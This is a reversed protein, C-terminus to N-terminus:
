KSDPRLLEVLTKETSAQKSGRFEYIRRTAQSVTKVFESHSRGTVDLFGVAYNERDFRGAANQDLWQFWHAGVFRPEAVASALYHAYALGRQRQDWVGFLGSGPVGRDVAGFHFESAIIPIDIDSTLQHARVQSEYVNVSFVDVHGVAAHGLLKPGRHTRCGLYLTGPLMAEVAAKCRKFFTTAFELYLPELDDRVAKSIEGDSVRTLILDWDTHQTKWASNLATLQGYKQKMKATAWAKTASDAAEDFLMPTIEDPWDLENGIFVGLLWPDDKAWLHKKLADRLKSEFDDSFPSPFVNLNSPRWWPSAILTYPLRHDKQMAEDSWCGLTNLGWAQMRSLDGERTLSEWEKGFFRAYNLSPYNILQQGNHWRLGAWRLPDNKDPIYAFFGSDRRIPRVATESKNGALCVGVSFFLHGEPDILWWKGDVKETRFRGTAERKPGELWGGYKSLKRDKASTAAARYEAMLEARAEDLSGAKGPWSVARVQGMEDLYPMANLKADLDTATPWAAIFDGLLLDVKGTSSRLELTLSRVDEPHFTRWHLRHGNARGLQDKFVEPGQYRDEPAAFPFGLTAEEGSPAVCFGVAHDSWDTSHINQLRGSISVIGGGNNTVRLGALRHGSLDWKEGNGPIFKLRLPSDGAVRWQAGVQEMKALKAPTPKMVLRLRPKFLEAVPVGDAAYTVRLSASVCLLVFFFPKFKRMWGMYFRCCTM